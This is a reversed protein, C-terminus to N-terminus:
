QPIFRCADAVEHGIDRGRRKRGRKQLRARQERVADGASALWENQPDTGDGM